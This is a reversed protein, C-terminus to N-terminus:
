PQESSAGVPALANALHHHLLALTQRDMSVTVEEDDRTMFTIAAGVHSVVTSVSWAEYAKRARWEPM